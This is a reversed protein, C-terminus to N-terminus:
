RFKRGEPRRLPKDKKAPAPPPDAHNEVPGVGLPKYQFLQMGLAELAKKDYYNAKKQDAALQKAKAEDQMQLIKIKNALAVDNLKQKMEVEYEAMKNAIIKANEPSDDIKGKGPVQVNTIQPGFGPPKMFAPNVGYFPNLHGAGDQVMDGTPKHHAHLKVFEQAGYSIETPEKPKPCTFEEHCEKCHFQMRNTLFAFTVIVKGQTATELWKTVYAEIM